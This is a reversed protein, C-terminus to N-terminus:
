LDDYLMSIQKLVTRIEREYDSRWKEETLGDGVRWYVLYTSLEFLLRRIPIIDISNGPKSCSEIIKWYLNNIENFINNSFVRDPKIYLLGSVDSTISRSNMDEIANDVIEELIRINEDNLLKNEVEPSLIWDDSMRYGHKRINKYLGNLKPINKLFNNTRNIYKQAIAAEDADLGINHKKKLEEALVDYTTLKPSLSGIVWITTMVTTDSISVTKEDIVIVHNVNDITLKAGTSLNTFILVQRDTM